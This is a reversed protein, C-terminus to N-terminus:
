RKRRKCQVLVLIRAEYETQRTRKLMIVDWEGHSGATRATSYGEAEFIRQVEREYRVGAEYNKNKSM